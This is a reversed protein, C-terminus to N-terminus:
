VGNYFVVFKVNFVVWFNVGDVRKVVGDEIGYNKCNKDSM